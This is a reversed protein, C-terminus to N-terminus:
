SSRLLAGSMGLTAATPERLFPRVMTPRRALALLVCGYGACDARDSTSGCGSLDGDNAGVRCPVPVKPARDHCRRAIRSALTPQDCAGKGRELRVSTSLWL